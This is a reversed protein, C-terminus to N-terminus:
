SGAPRRRRSLASQAREDGARLAEDARPQGLPQEVLARADHHQPAVDLGLRAEAGLPDLLAARDRQGVQGVVVREHPHEVLVLDVVTKWRAACVITPVALREGSDVKSALTRPM